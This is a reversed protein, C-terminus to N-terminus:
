WIIARDKEDKYMGDGPKVGFAEYFQPMNSLPGLVRFQGPSHPDTRVQQSKYEPTANNAWVQGFGIFFRQEPTFGDINKREKNQLSIQYAEYAITLGGLDAINEGLTLSGNVNLSDSVKFANFQQVLKDTKAKFKENDQASWWNKMNGNKDFQSGQDDFGHLLEHGIVAGIAGYNAADDAAPNFFPPQMIAAPFVIENMLPNYYANVTQPTMGWETRDIPKGLKEVQYRHGFNSTNLYNNWYADPKIEVSSYDRWKDPYGLKRTFSALKEIARQKTSDSMWDLKTLRIKFAATLNDVLESVRKKSEPSFAKKVYEQAVLEGIQGNAASIVRKWRPKMEKTGSLVTEYFDFNQKDLAATLKSAAADLLHWRLYTKTSELSAKNGMMKDLQAFFLPQTVIVEQVNKLDSLEFYKKWDINPNMKQLEAMTKKNYQKEMNRLEVAGMSVRALETEFALIAKADAAAKAADNGALEFMKTIHKVYEERYKKSDSDQNLYYDKEPLGLGGQGLYVTYQDSKKMDQEIGAGFLASIGHAHAYALYTILDDNTKIGNIQDLQPQIPTIGLKERLTTDMAAKYFDGVKRTVSGEAASNNAAAEELISRLLTKNSEDIAHFATWSSETSPVPNKAIWGGNAYTYFDNRPSVTTDMFAFEVGKLTKGEQKKEENGGCSATATALALLYLKWYQTYNM